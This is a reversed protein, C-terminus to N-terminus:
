FWGHQEMKLIENILDESILDISIQDIGLDNLCKEYTDDDSYPADSYGIEMKQCVYNAIYLVYNMQQNGSIAHVPTHHHGIGVSLNVPFGWNEAIAYGIQQHTIGQRAKEVLYLDQETSEAEIVNKVFTEHLFQDEIIIGIDHLLGATYVVQGPDRLERRYIMKGCLAVAASHKWLNTRSYTGILQDAGHFLECIKQSLALEKVTNFGLWVIAQKIEDIYRRSGYYASNALRIVKACLPPDHEIIETLDRASTGPDNIVRFIEMLSHRITSIYSQNVLKLIENITIIPESSLDM